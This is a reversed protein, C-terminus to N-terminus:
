FLRFDKAFMVYRYGTHRNILDSATRMMDATSFEALNKLIRVYDLKGGLSCLSAELTGM